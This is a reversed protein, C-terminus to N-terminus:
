SWALHADVAYIQEDRCPPTSAARQSRRVVQRHCAVRWWGVAVRWAVVNPGIKEDRPPASSDSSSTGCSAPRATRTRSNGSGLPSTNKPVGWTIPAATTPREAAALRGVSLPPVQRPGFQSAFCLTEAVPEGLPSSSQLAAEPSRHLNLWRPWHRPPSQSALADVRSDGPDTWTDRTQRWGLILLV